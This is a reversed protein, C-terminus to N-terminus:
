LAFRLLPEPQATSYGLIIKLIVQLFLYNYTITIKLFPLLETSTVTLWKNLRNKFGGRAMVQDNAPMM